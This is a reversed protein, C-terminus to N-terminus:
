VAYYYIRRNQAIKSIKAGTNKKFQPKRFIHRKVAHGYKIKKSVRSDNYEGNFFFGNNFKM